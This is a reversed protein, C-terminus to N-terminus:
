HANRKSKDHGLQDHYVAMLKNAIRRATAFIFKEPDHLPEDKLTLKVVTYPTWGDEGWGTEFACDEFTRQIVREVIVDGTWTSLGALQDLLSPDFRILLRFAYANELYGLFTIDGAIASDFLIGNHSADGRRLAALSRQSLLIHATALLSEM